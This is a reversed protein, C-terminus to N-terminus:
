LADLIPNAIEPAVDSPAFYNRRGPGRVMVPPGCFQDPQQSHLELQRESYFFMGRKFLRMAEPNSRRERAALMMDQVFENDTLDPNPRRFTWVSQNAHALAESVVTMVLNIDYCSQNVAMLELPTFGSQAVMRNFFVVHTAEHVLYGAVLDVDMRVVNETHVAFFGHAMYFSMILTTRERRQEPLVAVLPYREGVAAVVARVEAPMWLGPPLPHALISRRAEEIVQIASQDTLPREEAPPLARGRLHRLEEEWRVIDISTPPRAPFPRDPLWHAPRAPEQWTPRGDLATMPEVLRDVLVLVGLGFLGTAFLSLVYLTRVRM